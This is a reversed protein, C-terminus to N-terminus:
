TAPKRSTFFLASLVTATAVAVIIWRRARLVSLYAGVDRVGTRSDDAIVTLSGHNLGHNM